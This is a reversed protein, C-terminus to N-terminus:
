GKHCCLQNFQTSGSANVPGNPLEGYYFSEHQPIVSIFDLEWHTRTAHGVLLHCRSDQAIPLPVGVISFHYVLLPIWAYGIQHIAHVEAISSSRLCLPPPLAPYFSSIAGPKAMSVSHKQRKECHFHLIHIVKKKIM